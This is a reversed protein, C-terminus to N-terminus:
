PTVALVRTEMSTSRYEGSKSEIRLSVALLTRDPSLQTDLVTAGWYSDNGGEFLCHRGLAHWTRKHEDIRLDVNCEWGSATIRPPSPASPQLPGLRALAAREARIAKSALESSVGWMFNGSYQDAIEEAKMIPIAVKKKGIVELASTCWAGGGDGTGCDAVHVVAQNDATWGVFVRRSPVRQHRLDVIDDRVPEDAHAFTPLLLFLLALRM